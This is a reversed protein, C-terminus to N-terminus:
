RRTRRRSTPRSRKATPSSSAPSAASEGPGIGLAAFYDSILAGIEAGGFPADDFRARDAAPLASRLMDEATASLEIAEPGSIQDPRRGALSEALAAYRRLRAPRVDIQGFRWVHGHANHTLVPEGPARTAETAAADLADPM